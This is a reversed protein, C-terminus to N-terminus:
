LIGALIYYKNTKSNNSMMELKRLVQQYPAVSNINNEGQGDFMEQSWFQSGLHMEETTCVM